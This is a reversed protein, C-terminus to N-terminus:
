LPDYAITILGKILKHDELSRLQVVFGQIGYEKGEIILNAM